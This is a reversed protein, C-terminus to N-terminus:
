GEQMGEGRWTLGRYVEKAKAIPIVREFRLQIREGLVESVAKLTQWDVAGSIRVTDEGVSSLGGSRDIGLETLLRNFAGEQKRGREQAQTRQEKDAKIM